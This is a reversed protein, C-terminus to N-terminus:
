GAASIEMVRTVASIRLSTKPTKSTTAQARGAARAPAAGRGKCAGGRRVGNMRNDGFCPMTTACSFVAARIPASMNFRPPLAISAATAVPKAIATV